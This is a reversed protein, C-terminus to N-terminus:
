PEEVELVRDAAVERLEQVAGSPWEIRVLEVRAEGGLGFHVRRDSSSMFGVSPSVHGFLRRGSALRLEIAAGVADRNSKRGRLSVLLWHNGNGGSSLLIRPRENLSTVVLDQFGDDNLDGFASGRQYGVRLFDEGLSKSVDEFTGAETNRLMTDHQASNDGLYDVDGNASYIDKRGDNDYDVFGASWGSFRRSLTAVRTQPSVYDFFKGAQNHFLGHMQNQLNNYFIDPWGDNDYDRADCGMASVRSGTNNYAVGLLLAVEEFRGDRQNVFLFNPETDNAVFVDPWGDRNFDAVAIGMGKGRAATLGAESSVDAFRGDGLNRYLTHPVSQVATPNCYFPTGDPMACRPDTAPSWYTYQSVMLDLRGDRDYDLWAAHVSLLDKPKRDLGSGATADEFTGDGKNRYLANPGANCVFLDPDGDNDYDGAAVGFSFDLHAGALGAAQTADEFRGGGRNRLLCGYFSADTKKLEPLKAGNTFFIDQRSDGDFDFIAVGGCMPQPFYKRDGYDNRSRYEFESLKAADTFRIPAPAAAQSAAAAAGLRSAGIGLAALLGCAFLPVARRWAAAHSARSM